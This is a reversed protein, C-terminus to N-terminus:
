GYQIDLDTQNKPKRDSKPKCAAALVPKIVKDRLTLLAAMTKLGQADPYTDTLQDVM